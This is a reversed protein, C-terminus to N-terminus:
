EEMNKLIYEKVRTYAYHYNTKLSSISRGTIQAIQEYSMQEYYRLNFVVQQKEPLLLLAQQFLAEASGFDVGQEAHFQEIIGERSDLSEGGGRQRKLHRLSENTAVKYVWTRLSSEGKFGDIYRYINIFANQMVDQADEHCVVLRRIHWYIPERLSRVLLEFGEDRTTTSALLEVIRKEDIMM